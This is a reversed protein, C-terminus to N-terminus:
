AGHILEPADVFTGMLKFVLGVGDDGNLREFGAAALLGGM